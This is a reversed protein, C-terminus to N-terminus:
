VPEPETKMNVSIENLKSIVKQILQDPTSAGASVGVTDKGEFWESLMEDATQVQYTDSNIKKSISTLRKTNASTYSGIIIMIDNQAALEKIAEQNRTTPFCITNIFRFDTAKTILINIIEQVNEITQTSQSVVGIKKMKRLSEAEEPKSLITANEVQSSIGIVEDHGHDGIIFIQRGEKELEKVEEHIQTVLPCTADIINLDMKKAKDWVETSTGHARFLVPANKVDTLKDVVVVGSEDLHNVVHENHVIDGLMYVKGFDAASEHAMQVADRVGFCFGSGRALTVKM